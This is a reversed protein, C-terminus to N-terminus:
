VGGAQLDVDRRVELHALIDAENTTPPDTLQARPLARQTRRARQGSVPQGRRRLGRCTARDCDGTATPPPTTTDRDVAAPVVALGRDAVTLTPPDVRPPARVPAAGGGVPTPSPRGRGVAWAGLLAAVAALAVAKGRHASWLRRAVPARM